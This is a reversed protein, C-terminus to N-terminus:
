LKFRFKSFNFRAGSLFYRWLFFGLFYLYLTFWIWIMFGKFMAPKNQSIQLTLTNLDATSYYTKILVGLAVFNLIIMLLALSKILTKNFNVRIINFITTLGVIILAMHAVLTPFFYRGQLGFSFGHALYFIYNYYIIALYYIVSILLLFIVKYDFIREKFDRYFKFILGILSLILTYNILRNALHPLTVGLWDFVGWYWPLTEAYTHKLSDKLFLLFSENTVERGGPAFSYLNGLFSQLPFAFNRSLYYFFGTLVLGIFLGIGLPWNKKNFLNNRSSSKIILLVLLGLIIPIAFVVQPKTFYM